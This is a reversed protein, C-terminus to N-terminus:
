VAAFLKYGLPHHFHAWSQHFNSIHFSTIPPETTFEGFLLLFIQLITAADDSLIHSAHRTFVFFATSSGGHICNLDIWPVQIELSEWLISANYRFFLFLCAYFRYSLSSPICFNISTETLSSNLNNLEDSSLFSDISASSLQKLPMRDIFKQFMVSLGRLLLNTSSADHRDNM